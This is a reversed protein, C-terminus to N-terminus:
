PLNRRARAPRAEHRWAFRLGLLLLGFSVAALALGWVLYPGGFAQAVQAIDSTRPAGDVVVSARFLYDSGSVTDMALTVGLLQAFVMRERPSGWIAFARVVLAVIPLAVWGALSRVWIALSVAMAIAMIALIVRARRPGRSTALLTAGCLPPGLLGGAATLGSQWPHSTATYALGSGNAFVELYSFKGGLILATTGHGMEHVWTALLTLPYLLTGGFPVFTKVVFYVILAGILAGRATPKPPPALKV